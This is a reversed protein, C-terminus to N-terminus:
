SLVCKLDAMDMVCRVTSYMAETPCDDGDWAYVAQLGQTCWPQGKHLGAHYLPHDDPDHNWDNASQLGQFHAAAFDKVAQPNSSLIWQGPKDPCPVWVAEDSVVTSPPKARRFLAGFRRTKQQEAHLTAATERVIADWALRHASLERQHCRFLDHVVKLWDSWVTDFPDHANGGIAATRCARGAANIPQVATSVAFAVSFRRSKELDVPHLVWDMLVAAEDAEALDELWGLGASTRSLESRPLHLYARWMHLWHIATKLCNQVYIARDLVKDGTCQSPLM